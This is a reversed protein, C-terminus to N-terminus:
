LLKPFIESLYFILLINLFLFQFNSTIRSSKNRKNLIKDKESEEDFVFSGCRPWNKPSPPLQNDSGVKFALTM